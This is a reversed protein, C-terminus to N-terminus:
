RPLPAKCGVLAEIKSGPAANATTCMSPCLVIKTPDANNDYYWGDTVSGCKAKDTV